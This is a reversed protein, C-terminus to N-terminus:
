NFIIILAILPYRIWKNIKKNKSIEISGEVVLELIFEFLEDLM